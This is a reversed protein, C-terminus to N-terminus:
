ELELLLGNVLIKMLSRHISAFLRFFCDKAKQNEDRGCHAM